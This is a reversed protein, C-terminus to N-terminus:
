PGARPTVRVTVAFNRQGPALRTGEPFHFTVARNPLEGSEDGVGGLNVYAYLLDAQSPDASENALQDIKEPPGELIVEEFTDSGVIEVDHRRLWQSPGAPWISVNRVKFTKLTQRVTFHANVSLAGNVDPAAIRVHPAAFVGSILPVSVDHTGPSKLEGLKTLDVTLYPTDSKQLRKAEDFLSRPATVKVTDPTFRPEGELGTVKGPVRVPLEESVLDDVTAQLSKPNIDSLSIGNRVLVPDDNLVAAPIQIEGAPTGPDIAHVLVPQDTRELRRLFEQVNTHPGTVTATIAADRLTVVKGSNNVVVRVPITVNKLDVNQEREAYVWILITLPIVWVLTKLVDLVKERRPGVPLRRAYPIKRHPPPPPPPPATGGATATVPEPSSTSSLTDAM